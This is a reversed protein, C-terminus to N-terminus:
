RLSVNLMQIIDGSDEILDSVNVMKEIFKIFFYWEPFAGMDLKKLKRYIRGKIRDVEEEAIKLKLLIGALDGSKELADFSQLLYESMKSNLEAVRSLDPLLEEPVREILYLLNAVDELEDLIEDLSEALHCLNQRLAPIFAGGYISLMIERRITDGMREIECIEDIMDRDGHEIVARLAENSDIILNIHERFKEIVEREKEGGFVFKKIRDILKIM